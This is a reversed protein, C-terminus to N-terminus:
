IFSVNIWNLVFNRGKNQIRGLLKQTPIWQWPSIISMEIDQLAKPVLVPPEQSSVPNCPKHHSEELLFRALLPPGQSCLRSPDIQRRQRERKGGRETKREKDRQWQRKRKSHRETERERNGTEWAKFWKGEAVDSQWIARHQLWCFVCQVENFQVSFYVEEKLRPMGASLSTVLTWFTLVSPNAGSEWKIFAEIFDCCM